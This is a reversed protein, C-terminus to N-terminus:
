KWRCHGLRVLYGGLGSVHCPGRLGASGEPVLHWREQGGADGSFVEHEQGKKRAKRREGSRSSTQTWGTCKTEQYRSGALLQQSLLMKDKM